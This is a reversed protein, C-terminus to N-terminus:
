HGLGSDSAARQRQPEGLRRRLAGAMCVCRRRSVGAECGPEATAALPRTSSPAAWMARGLGGWGVEVDCDELGRLVHMGERGARLASGARSGRSSAISARRESAAGVSQRASALESSLAAAIADAKPM